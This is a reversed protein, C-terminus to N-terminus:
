ADDGQNKNLKLQMNNQDSWTLLQNIFTEMDSMLTQVSLQMVSDFRRYTPKCHFLYSWPTVRATHRWELFAMTLM